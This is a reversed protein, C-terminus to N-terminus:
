MSESFDIPELMNLKDLAESFLFVLLFPVGPIKPSTRLM